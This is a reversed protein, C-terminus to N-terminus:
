NIRYQITLILWDRDLSTTSINEITFSNHQNKISEIWDNVKEGDLERFVNLRFIKIM